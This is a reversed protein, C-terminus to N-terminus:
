PHSLLCAPLQFSVGRPTLKWSAIEADSVVEMALSIPDNNTVQALTFVALFVILLVHLIMSVMWVTSMKAIVAILSKQSDEETPKEASTPRRQSELNAKSSRSTSSNSTKM